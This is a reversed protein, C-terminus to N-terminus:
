NAQRRVFSPIEFEEEDFTFDDEGPLHPAQGLHRSPAAYGQAGAGSKLKDLYPPVRREPEGTMGPGANGAPKTFVGGQSKSAGQRFPLTTAAGKPLSARSNAVDIGTAIVTIRIEDGVSEDFVTGFFIRADEHAEEQIIGAAEGVEEITLDPGSTINILVGRAGGISVDELLPSTIARMAADRARSEGTARGEGMMAFGPESMVTQVDAFDLNILGHVTILDSIGKVASYLVEDAKKLMDVFTAKKPALQILRDNPIIILSDVHERFEAIGAEAAELRKKGEFYFPKTVVGVTLAGVEKAAQAIVPAAGTGTGGGMGATVFVMDCDAIAHKIQEINEVAAQYGVQPNAGAGLGRTLKDGLQIKHDALSNTLAQIDTNAAIFSVGNLEGSIMNNIANGGGGGVGIVKIKAGSPETIETYEM